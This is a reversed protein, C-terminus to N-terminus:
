APHCILCRLPRLIDEAQCFKKYRGKQYHNKLDVGTCLKSNRGWFLIASGTWAQIMFILIRFIYRQFGLM